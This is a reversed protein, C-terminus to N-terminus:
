FMLSCHKYASFGGPLDTELKGCVYCFRNSCKCCTIHTCALDKMGLLDVILAQFSMVESDVIQALEPVQKLLCEFFGSMCSVLKILSVGTAM